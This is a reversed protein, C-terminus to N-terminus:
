LNTAVLLDTRVRLFAALAPRPDWPFARMRDSPIRMALYGNDRLVAGDLAAGQGRDETLRAQGGVLEELEEVLVDAWIGLPPCLAAIM